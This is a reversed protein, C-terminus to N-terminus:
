VLLAGGTTYRKIPAYLEAFPREEDWSEGKITQSNQRFTMGKGGNIGFKSIVALAFIVLLAICFFETERADKLTKYKCIESFTKVCVCVCVC